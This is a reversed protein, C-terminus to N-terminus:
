HILMGHSSLLEKRTTLGHFSEWSGEIHSCCGSLESFSKHSLLLPSAAGHPLALLFVFNVAACAPASDKGVPCLGVAGGSSLGLLAPSLLVNILLGDIVSFPFTAALTLGPFGYSSCPVPRSVPVCRYCLKPLSHTGMCSSLHLGQILPCFMLFSSSIQLQRLLPDPRHPHSTM